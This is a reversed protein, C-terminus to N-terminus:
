EKVKLVKLIDLLENKRQHNQLLTLPVNRYECKCSDDISFAYHLTSIEKGKDNKFSILYEYKGIDLNALNNSNKSHFGYQFYLLENPYIVGNIYPYLNNDTGLMYIDSFIEKFIENGSNNKALSVILADISSIEGIRLGVNRTTIYQYIIDKRIVFEDRGKVIIEAKGIPFTFHILILLNVVTVIAILWNSADRRLFLSCFKRGDQQNYNKTEM